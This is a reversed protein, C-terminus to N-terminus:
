SQNEAVEREYPNPRVPSFPHSQSQLKCKSFAMNMKYPTTIKALVWNDLRRHILLIKFMGVTSQWGELLRNKVPQFESPRRIVAPETVSKQDPPISTDCRSSGVVVTVIKTLTFKFRDATKKGRKRSYGTGVLQIFIVSLLSNPSTAQQYERLLSNSCVPLSGVILM